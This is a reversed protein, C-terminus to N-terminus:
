NKGLPLDNSQPLDKAEEEALLQLLVKREADDHPEALRMRFLALNERHIFSEVTLGRPKPM